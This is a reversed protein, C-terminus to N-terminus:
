SLDGSASEATLPHSMALLERERLVDIRAGDDPDFFLLADPAVAVERESGVPCPLGPEIVATVAQEGIRISAFSEPGLHEVVEVVGRAFHLLGRKDADRTAWLSQPRVGLL